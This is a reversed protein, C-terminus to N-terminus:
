PVHYTLNYAPNRCVKKDNFAFDEDIGLDQVQVTDQIRYVRIFGFKLM